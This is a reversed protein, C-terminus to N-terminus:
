VKVPAPLPLSLPRLVMERLWASAAVLTRTFITSAPAPRVAQEVSLKAMRGEVRAPMAEAAPATVAVSLSQSVAPLLRLRFLPPALPPVTCLAPRGKVRRACAQDALPAAV